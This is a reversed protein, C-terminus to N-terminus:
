FKDVAEHDFLLASLQMRSYLESYDRINNGCEGKGEGILQGKCERGGDYRWRLGKDTTRIVEYGKEVLTVYLDGTAISNPIGRTGTQQAAALIDAAYLCAVSNSLTLWEGSNASIADELTEHNTERFLSPEAKSFVIPFYVQQGQLPISRCRELFGSDFELELDALFVIDNPRLERIVLSIGHEQSLLAPSDMVSFSAKPYKSKYFDLSSKVVDMVSTSKEKGGQRSKMNVILIDIKQDFNLLKELRAMFSKFQVLHEMTMVVAITVHKSNVGTAKMLVPDVELSNLQRSLTVRFHKSTSFEEESNVENGEFDIIYDIGTQPIVRFYANVIRKFTYSGEEWTSLYDKCKGILSDFENRWVAPPNVVPTSEEESLLLNNSVLKWSIIDERTLSAKQNEQHADIDAQPLLDDMLELSAKIQQLQHHSSNLKEAVMLQHIAYMLKPDSVPYVTVAGSLIERHKQETIPGRKGGDFKLFLNHPNGERNCQLRPVQRCICEGLVCDTVPKHKECEGIKACVEEVATYSLMSGPGPMCVRGIPERKIPKGLYGYHYHLADMEMLYRELAFTKVYLNDNAIFFWKTSNLKHECIYKLVQIEALIDLSTLHHVNTLKGEVTGPIEAERQSQVFFTIDSPTMDGAWTENLMRVVDDLPQASSVIVAYFVPARVDVEDSLKMVHQEHNGHNHPEVEGLLRKVEALRAEVPSKGTLIDRDGTDVICM